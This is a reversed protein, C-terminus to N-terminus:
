LMENYGKGSSDIIKLVAFTRETIEGNFIYRIYIAAQDSVSVDQTSDVKLSFKQNCL